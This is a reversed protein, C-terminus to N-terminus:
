LERKGKEKRAYYVALLLITLIINLLTFVPIQQPQEVKICPIQTAPSYFNCASAGTNTCSRQKFGGECQGITCQFADECVPPICAADGYASSCLTGSACGLPDSLELCADPDYNGCITIAATSSCIGLTDVPCENSCEEGYIGELSCNSSCGDNNNLNGDDCQENNSGEIIGNGCVAGANSIVALTNSSAVTVSSGNVIATAQFQYINASAENHYEATWVSSAIGNAFISPQPDVTPIFPDETNIVQFQFIYNDCNATGTVSLSVQSGEAATTAAWSASIDSLTCTNIGPCNDNLALITCSDSPAADCVDGAGDGDSDTQFLDCTGSSCDTDSTCTTSTGSCTGIAPGNPIFPCNDDCSSVEGTKCVNDTALGSGDGDDLVGDLDSDSSSSLPTLTCCVQTNYLTSTCGAVHANTESSLTAVCVYDAGLAACNDPFDVYTCWIGQFCLQNPYNSQDKKEAHSSPPDAINIIANCGPDNPDSACSSSCAYDSPSGTGRNPFPCAAFPAIASDTGPPYAHANDVASTQFLVDEPNCSTLDVISLGTFSPPTTTFANFALFSAFLIIITPILLHVEKKQQQGAGREM